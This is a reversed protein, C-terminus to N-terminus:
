AAMGEIEIGQDRSEGRQLATAQAILGGAVGTFMGRDDIAQGAFGELVTRDVM